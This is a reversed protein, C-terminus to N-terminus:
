PGAAVAEVLQALGAPERAVRAPGLGLVVPDLVAVRGRDDAVGVAQGDRLVVSGSVVRRRMTATIPSPEIVPPM